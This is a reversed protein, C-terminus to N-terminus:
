FNRLKGVSTLFPLCHLETIPPPIVPEDDFPSHTEYLWGDPIILEEEGEDYISFLFELPELFIDEIVDPIFLDEGPIDEDELFAELSQNDEFIEEILFNDTFGEFQEEETDVAELYFILDDEPEQPNDIDGIITLVEEEFAADINVIPEDADFFPSSIEGYVEVLDEESESLLYFILDEVVAIDEIVDSIFLGLDFIEEEPVEALVQIIFDPEAPPAGQFALLLSM